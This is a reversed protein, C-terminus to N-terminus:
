AGLFVDGRIQNRGGADELLAAAPDGHVGLMGELVDAVVAMNPYREEPRKGMM